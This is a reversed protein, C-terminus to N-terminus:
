PHTKIGESSEMGDRRLKSMDGIPEVKQDHLLAFTGRERNHSSPRSTHANQKDACAGCACFRGVGLSFAFPVHRHNKITAAEPGLFGLTSFTRLM